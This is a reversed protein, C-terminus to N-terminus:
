KRYKEIRRVGEQRENLTQERHATLSCNAVSSLEIGVDSLGQKLIPHM